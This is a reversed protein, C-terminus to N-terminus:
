LRPRLRTFLRALTNLLGYFFFLHAQLLLRLGLSRGIHLAGSLGAPQFFLFPLRLPRRFLSGQLGCLLSGPCGLMCGFQGCGFHCGGLQCSLLSLCRPRRSLLRRLSCWRLRGFM